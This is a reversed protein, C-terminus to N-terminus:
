SVRGIYSILIVNNDPDGLFNVTIWIPMTLILAILTFFWSALFKGLVLQSNTVPLTMLLEITGSKKNNIDVVDIKM